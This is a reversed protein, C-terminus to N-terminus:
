LVSILSGILGPVYLVEILEALSITGKKLVKLM